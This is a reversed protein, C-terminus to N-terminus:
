TSCNLAPLSRLGTTATKRLRSSASPSTAGGHPVAARASLVAAEATEQMTTTNAAAINTFSEVAYNIKQELASLASSSDSHKKDHKKDLTEIEDRRGKISTDIHNESRKAAVEFKCDLLQSLEGKDVVMSNDPINGTIGNGSPAETRAGKSKQTASDHEISM